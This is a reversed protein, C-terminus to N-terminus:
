LLKNGGSVLDLPPARAAMMWGDMTERIAHIHLPPTTTTQRCAHATRKNTFATIHALSRRRRRRRRWLCVCVCVLLRDSYFAVIHGPALRGVLFRYNPTGIAPWKCDQIMRLRPHPIATEGRRGAGGGMLDFKMRGRRQKKGVMLHRDDDTSSSSSSSRSVM